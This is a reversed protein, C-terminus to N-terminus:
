FEVVAHPPPYLSGFWADSTSNPRFIRILLSHLPCTPVIDSNSKHANRLKDPSFTKRNTRHVPFKSLEAPVYLYVTEVVYMDSTSGFERLLYSSVFVGYLYPRYNPYDPDCGGIVFSYAYLPSTSRNKQNKEQPLTEMKTHTSRRPKIDNEAARGGRQITTNENNDSLWSAISLLDAESRSILAKHVSSTGVSNAAHDPPTWWVFLIVTTVLYVAFLCLVAGASKM